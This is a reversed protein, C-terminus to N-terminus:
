ATTLVAEPARKYACFIERLPAFLFLNEGIRQAKADKRSFDPEKPIATTFV